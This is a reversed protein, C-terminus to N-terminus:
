LLGEDAFSFYSTNNVILHDLLNIEMIKGSERINKTLKIDAESPKLNGSPHNHCLVIGSALNDIAHKFVLRIDVVTGSVGGKSLNIKKIAVNARNLLIIWFEEHVLDLTDPNILEFINRSNLIKTKKTEPSSKRRRGLEMAAVISIAKAEGIGKFKCLDVITLSALQNLDNNVSNLIRKALEVASENRSGSGILLAIIEAETLVTRGKELLKERPRDASAWTKISINNEL